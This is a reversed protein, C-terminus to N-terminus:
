FHQNCGLKAKMNPKVWAFLNLVFYVTEVVPNPIKGTVTEIIIHVKVPLSRLEPIDM